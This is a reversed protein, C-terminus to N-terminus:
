IDFNHLVEWRKELKLLSFQKVEMTGSFKDPQFQQWLEYFLPKKLDRFAITIHPHFGRMDESENLLGLKTRAHASLQDHLEFLTENKKIDIYLVRPEFCAFDNLQLSFTKGFNFSKMTEILINEKEEKWEFPRHLTIHAPSRLAGKLGHKEFLEQKLAEARELLDGELVLAIFYKKRMSTDQRL